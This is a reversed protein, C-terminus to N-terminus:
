FELHWVKSWKNKGLWNSAPKEEYYEKDVKVDFFSYTKEENYKYEQEVSMDEDLLKYHVDFVEGNVKLWYHTNGNALGEVLLTEEKMKKPLKTWAMYCTFWCRNAYEYVKGSLILDNLKEFTNMTKKNQKCL